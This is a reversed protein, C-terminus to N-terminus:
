DFKISINLTWDDATKNKHLVGGVECVVGVQGKKINSYLIKM